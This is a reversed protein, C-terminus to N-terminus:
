KAKNSKKKYVLRSMFNEIFNVNHAGGIYGLLLPVVPFIAVAASFYNVRRVIYAYGVVFECFWSRFAMTSLGTSMEDLTITVVLFAVNFLTYLVALVYGDKYNMKQPLEGDALHNNHIKVTKRKHNALNWSFTFIVDFFIIIALLSYLVEGLRFDIIGPFLMVFLFCGLSCAAHAGLLRFFNKTM